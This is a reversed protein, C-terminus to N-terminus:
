GTRLTDLLQFPRYTTSFDYEAPVHHYASSYKGYLVHQYRQEGIMLFETHLFPTKQDVFPWLTSVVPM